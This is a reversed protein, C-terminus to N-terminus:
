MLTKPVEMSPITPGELNESSGPECFWDWGPYRNLMQINNIIKNILYPASRLFTCIRIMNKSEDGFKEVPKGCLKHVFQSTL